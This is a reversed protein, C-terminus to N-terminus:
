VAEVVAAAKEHAVAFGRRARMKVLAEDTLFAAGDNPGATYSEPGSRRGIVIYNRNVFFLLPNGGPSSTAVSHTKAGLSWRIPIEFLTDPTGGDGGSTGRSGAVFIPRGQTDVINRILARFRPHAIVVMASEEFYDSTEVQGLVGSLLSYTVLGAASSAATYNNDATYGTAANTTRLAKYLSTFPITTGNQAATVGLTANDLFKAYSTGWDNKKQQIVDILSATDNLDEEAIRIASGIKFATIDVKDNTSADEGYAASKAVSGVSMDASRPIHKTLVSMPEVRALAEVASTQMVREVVPGNWEEPIWNTVTIASVSITGKSGCKPRNFQQGGTV